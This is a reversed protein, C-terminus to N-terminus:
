RQDPEPASAAPASSAPAAGAPAPPTPAVSAPVLAAAALAVATAANAPIQFPFDVLAHLAMGTLAGLLGLDLPSRRARALAARLVLALLALVLAFGLLGGDTLAQLYDNHAEGIWETKWVSQYWPYATAFANWGAGLLPFRPVMPLMDRWLELRSARIGRTEFAQWVGGLGVWVVGLAVLVVVALAVKLRRRASDPRRGEPDPAARLVVLLVVLAAGAFAGVGGRSQSAVLGAVVVMVVAAARLAANGATEGLALWGHRRRRWSERLRGLAELAAGLALAAAMVLYNAFHSRNVYPGFVAWDWRPQWVGYLRRPHPSVAQLLAIVTLALGTFVVTRLLRRRWRGEGLERFVAVALLSFAALFALGRLTDPPSVSTPKWATLPPVLLQAEHFARSGPSLAGLLAPPLPVLQFLVLAHLALILMLGPLRPAPTRRPRALSVLGAAASGALLPVFVPEHVAGALLPGLALLALVLWRVFSQAREGSV